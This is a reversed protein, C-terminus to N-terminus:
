VLIIGRRLMVGDATASVLLRSPLSFHHRRRLSLLELHIEFFAAERLFLFFFCVTM